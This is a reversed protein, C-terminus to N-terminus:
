LKRETCFHIATSDAFTMPLGRLICILNNDDRTMDVTPIHTRTGLIIPRHRAISAVASRWRLGAM